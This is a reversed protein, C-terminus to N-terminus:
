ASGLTLYKNEFTLPEGGLTLANEPVDIPDGTVIDTNEFPQVGSTYLAYYGYQGSLLKNSTISINTVAEESKTNDVYITYAGGALINGDVICDTLASFQNNM